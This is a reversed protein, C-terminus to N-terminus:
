IAVSSKRTAASVSTVPPRACVAQLYADRVDALPTLLHVKTSTFALLNRVRLAAEADRLIGLEEKGLLHVM